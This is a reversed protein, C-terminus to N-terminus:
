VEQLKIHFHKVAGSRMMLSQRHASSPANLDRPLKLRGTQKNTNLEASRESADPVSQRLDEVDEQEEHEAEEDEGEHSELQQAFPSAANLERQNM